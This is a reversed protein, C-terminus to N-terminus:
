NISRSSIRLVEPRCIECVPASCLRSRKHKREFTEARKKSSKAFSLLGTNSFRGFLGRSKEPAEHKRGIKKKDLEIHSKRKASNPVKTRKKSEEIEFLKKCRKCLKPLDHEDEDPCDEPTTKTLMDKKRKAAVLIIISYIALYFVVIQLLYNNNM